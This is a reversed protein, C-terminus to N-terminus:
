EYIDKLMERLKLKDGSVSLNTRVPYRVKNSRKAKRFKVTKKTKAVYVRKEASFTPAALLLFILIFLARKM